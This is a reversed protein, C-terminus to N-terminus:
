KITVEEYPYRFIEMLTGNTLIERAAQLQVDPYGVRRNRVNGYKIISNLLSSQANPDIGVKQPNIADQEYLLTGSFEAGICECIPPLITEAHFVVDEM